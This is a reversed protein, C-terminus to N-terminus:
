TMTAEQQTEGSGYTDISFQAITSSNEVKILSFATQLEVEWNVGDDTDEVKAYYSRIAYM